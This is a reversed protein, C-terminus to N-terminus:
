SPTSSIYSPDDSMLSYRKWVQSLNPQSVGITKAFKRMSLGSAKWAEYREIAVERRKDPLDSKPKLMKAKKGWSWSEPLVGTTIQASIDGKHIWRKGFQFNKSGIAGRPNGTRVYEKRKPGRYVHSGNRKRDEPTLVNANVYGWGGNGGPCLNYTDERSCFGETVMEAEKANMEAETECVYLVKKDFAERGHKKVARRILKGSGLYGDNPDLTQHKGIYVKGSERHTIQYVTYLM